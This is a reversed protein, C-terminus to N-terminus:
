KWIAFHPINSIYTSNNAVYNHSDRSNWTKDYIQQIRKAKQPLFKPIPNIKWKSFISTQNCPLYYPYKTNELVINLLM